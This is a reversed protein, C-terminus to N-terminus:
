KENYTRSMTRIHIWGSRIIRRLECCCTSLNFSDYSNPKPFSEDMILCTIANILSCFLWQYALHLNRIQHNRDTASCPVNHMECSMFRVLHFKLRLSIIATLGTKLASHSRLFNCHVFNPVNCTTASQLYLIFYTKLVLLMWRSKTCKKQVLEIKMNSWIFKSIEEKPTLM